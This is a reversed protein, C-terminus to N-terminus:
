QAETSDTDMNTELKAGLAGGPNQGQVRHPFEARLGGREGMLLNM